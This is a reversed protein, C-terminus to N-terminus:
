LKNLYLDLHKKLHKDRVKIIQEPRTLVSINFNNILANKPSKLIYNVNVRGLDYWINSFEGRSKKGVTGYNRDELLEKYPLLDKYPCWFYVKYGWLFRWLKQLTIPKDFLLTKWDTIFTVKVLKGKLLREKDKIVSTRRIGAYITGAYRKYKLEIM